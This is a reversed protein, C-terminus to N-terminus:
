SNLVSLLVKHGNGHILLAYPYIQGRGYDTAWRSHHTTISRSRASTGPANIIFAHFGSWVLTVILGDQSSTRAVGYHPQSHGM